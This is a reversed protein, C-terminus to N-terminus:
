KSRGGCEWVNGGYSTYGPPYRGGGPTKMGGLDEARAELESHLTENSDSPYEFHELDLDPDSSNYPGAMDNDSDPPTVIHGHGAATTLDERHKNSPRAELILCQALLFLTFFFMAFSQSRFNFLHLLRLNRRHLVGLHLFILPDHGKDSRTRSTCSALIFWPTSGKNLRLPQPNIADDTLYLKLTSSMPLSSCRQFMCQWRDAKQLCRSSRCAELSPPEVEKWYERITKTSTKV